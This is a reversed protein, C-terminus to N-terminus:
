NSSIRGNPMMRETESLNSKLRKSYDTYNNIGGLRLLRFLAIGAAQLCAELEDKTARRSEHVIENRIERLGQLRNLYVDNLKSDDDSDFSLTKDELGKLLKNIAFRTSIEKKKGDPHTDITGDKKKFYIADQDYAAIIQNFIMSEICIWSLIFGTNSDVDDRLTWAEIFTILQNRMKSLFMRDALEVIIELEKANINILPVFDKRFDGHMMFVSRFSAYNGHDIIFNPGPDVIPAYELGHKGKMKEQMREWNDIMTNRTITCLDDAKIAPVYRSALRLLKLCLVFCNLRELAEEISESDIKVLGSKYFDLEHGGLTSSYVLEIFPQEVENPYIHKGDKSFVISPSVLCGFMSM